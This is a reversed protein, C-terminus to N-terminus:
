ALANLAIHCGLVFKYVSGVDDQGETGYGQAFLLIPRGGSSYKFYAGSSLRFVQYSIACVSGQDCATGTGTLIERYQIGSPLTILEGPQEVKQRYEEVEDEAEKGQEQKRYERLCDKLKDGRLGPCKLGAASAPPSTSVPSMSMAIVALFTHLLLRRREHRVVVAKRSVSNLDEESGHVM